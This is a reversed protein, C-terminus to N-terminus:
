QLIADLPVPLIAVSESPFPFERPKCLLKCEVAVKKQIYTLHVFAQTLVAYGSHM